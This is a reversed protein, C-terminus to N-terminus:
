RDSLIARLRDRCRKVAMHVSEATVGLQRALDRSDMEMIYYRELIFECRRDLKTLAQLIVVRAETREDEPLALHEDFVEDLPVHKGGRRIEDILCNKAVAVFYAPYFIGSRPGKRFIKIFKIFASQYADEALTPDRPYMATLVALLHPRLVVDLATLPAESPDSFCRNIIAELDSENPTSV